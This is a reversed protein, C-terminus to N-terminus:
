KPKTVPHMIARGDDEIEDVQLYVIMAVVDGLETGEPLQDIPASMRNRDSLGDIPIPEGYFNTGM